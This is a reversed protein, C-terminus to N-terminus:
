KVEKTTVDILGGAILIARIDKLVRTVYIDRDKLSTFFSMHLNHSQLDNIPTLCKGKVKSLSVVPWIMVSQEGGNDVTSFWNVTYGTGYAFCKAQVHIKKAM